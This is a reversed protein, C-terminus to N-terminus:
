PLTWESTISVPLVGDVTLRVSLAPIKDGYVPSSWGWVPSVNGSGYLLEGARVIQLQLPEGAAAGRRDSMFGLRVWGFPSRARMSLRPLSLKLVPAPESHDGGANEVEFPWDPLLWHVCISRRQSLRKLSLSSDLKSIEQTKSNSSGTPILSDRVVWKGEPLAEVSRRHVIGLKRYGDHQAALRQLGEDGEWGSEECPTEIVAQAWDLYLFRGARRMQDRGDVTVTNHVQSSTLANDWPSPANYFYSGADQALNLGRWWLDLHLQDAHGPRSAFRAARLYGWSDHEPLRLVHPTKHSALGRGPRVQTMDIRPTEGSRKRPLWLSMEDWPGEGFPHKGLIVTASAQIVPRYDHFPCVTLPLFCAGDNPGLNPVRGDHPDLLASLWGLAAELKDRTEDPLPQGASEGLCDMWLALQLMLRHYSASHQVYAGGADIQSQLGRNFWTWGIKRWKEASPHDPLVLGATYLGAAEALLHNNNQARAYVMTPPIRAAQDAIAQALRDERDQTSHVSGRFVQRAFALSMLRFAVEQGSTWQPGLYPPHASLFTETYSWFAEPYRQNGSLHYARGLIFAWGFRAPEWLLKVDAAGLQQWCAQDVEVRRLEYATWHHGANKEVPEGLTLVLPVPQGGFLRVRGAVIEDAEALLSERGPQGLIAAQEDREPLTLFDRFAGPAARRPVRTALRFYGSLLGVQYLAYRSLQGLGLERLAQLGVILRNTYSDPIRPKRM